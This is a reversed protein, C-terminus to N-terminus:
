YFNFHFSTIIVFSFYLSNSERDWSKGYFFNYGFGTLQKCIRLCQWAVKWVQYSEDAIYLLCIWFIIYVCVQVSTSPENLLQVLPIVVMENMFFGASLNQIIDILLFIICILILNKISYFWVNIYCVKISWSVSKLCICAAIRVDASDHALADIVM